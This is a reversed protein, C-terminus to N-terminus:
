EDSMLHALELRKEVKRRASDLLQRVRYVTWGGIARPHAKQMAYTVAQVRRSGLPLKGSGLWVYAFLVRREWLSLESDFIRGLDAAMDRLLEMPPKGKRTSRVSDVVPHTPWTKGCRASSCIWRAGKHKSESWRYSRGGCKSCAVQKPLYVKEGPYIAPVYRLTEDILMIYFSVADEASKFRVTTM